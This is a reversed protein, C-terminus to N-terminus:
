KRGLLQGSLYFVSASGRLYPVSNTEDLIVRSRKEDPFVLFVWFFSHKSFEYLVHFIQDSFSTLLIVYQIDCVIDSM